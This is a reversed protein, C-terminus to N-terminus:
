LFWISKLYLLKENLSTLISVINTSVIRKFNRICFKNNSFLHEHLIVFLKHNNDKHLSSNSAISSSGSISVPSITAILVALFIGVRWGGSTNVDRFTVSDTWDVSDYKVLENSYGNSHKTSEARGSYQTGSALM